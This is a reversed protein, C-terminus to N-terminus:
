LAPAICVNRGIDSIYRLQLEIGYLTSLFKENIVEKCSGFAFEGGPKLAAVNGDILLAHDPNHTTIVVGYDAQALKKIIRLVKIGNGYDLHATPEDMLILKPRQTLARAISVLQREGGSINTYYKNALHAIGMEALAAEAIEYHEKKPKDFTGIRPACGTVVYDIVEYSFSPIIFQPVYGISTGIERVSMEKIPKGDVIIEGRSIVSLNAICNLLTTKGVGNPGLITIIQGKKISFSIDKFIDTIGDYSYSISKIEMIM